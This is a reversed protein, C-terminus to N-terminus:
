GPNYARGGPVSVQAERARLKNLEVLATKMESEQRILGVLDNMTTQLEGHIAYPERGGPAGAAGARHGQGLGPGRRDGRAPGPLSLPGNDSGGAVAILTV